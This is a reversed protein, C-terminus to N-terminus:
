GNTTLRIIGAKIVEGPGTFIDNIGTEGDRALLTVTAHKVGAQNDFFDYVDHIHLQRAFDGQSLFERLSTDLTGMINQPADQTLEVEAFLNVRVFTPALVQVDETIMRIDALYDRVSQLLSDSPEGGGKPLVFVQVVNEQPHQIDVKEIEGFTEILRKYDDRTVARGRTIVLAPMHARLEELTEPNAGGASPSPNTVGKINPLSTMLQTLTYAGVNGQVGGGVIYDAVIQAGEPPINGYTGDGFQVWAERDSDIWVRYGNAGASWVLSPYEKWEEGDVRVTLANKGETLMVLGPTLLKFRQNKAGRSVGIIQGRVHTGNVAGVTGSAQGPPLYLQDTTEFIVRGDVTGVKTGLPITAAQNPDSKTFLLDVQAAAAPHPHYGFWEAQRCLSEFLRATSPFSETATVNQYFSFMDGIGAFLEVLVVGFDSELFDTWQPLREKIYAILDAKISEFDRSTYKVIQQSM